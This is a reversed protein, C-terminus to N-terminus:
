LKSRSTTALTTPDKPDPPHVFNVTKRSEHAMARTPRSPQRRHGHNATSQRHNATTPTTVSSVHHARSANSPHFKPPPFQPRSTRAPQEQPISPSIQPSTKRVRSSRRSPNPFRPILPATFHHMCPMVLEHSLCPIHLSRAISPRPYTAHRTTPPSIRFAALTLSM